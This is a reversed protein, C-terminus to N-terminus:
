VILKKYKKKLYILIMSVIHTFVLVIMVKMYPNTNQHIIKLGKVCIVIIAPHTFYYYKSLNRFQFYKNEVKRHSLYLACVFLYYSLPVCSLLINSNLRQSPYLLLAEGILLAFAYILKVFCYDSYLQKRAAMCYGFVIYFLGFFLFNRTTYFINFYMDVLERVSSTLVGHYTETAGFLLLLFSIFLLNKVSRKKKWYYLVFLSCILAPFYWLHYYVGTYIFAVFVIVPILLILGIISINLNQVVKQITPMYEYILEFTLPIYILSWVSYLKITNKIYQKIYDSNEQEKICIFYGTILFFLPVCVRSIMNNFFIDLYGVHNLFPRIHLVIIIISCIYKLLDLNHYNMKRNDYNKDINKQMFITICSLGLMILILLSPHHIQIIQFNNLFFVLIGVLFTISYVKNIKM